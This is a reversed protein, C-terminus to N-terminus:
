RGAGSSAGGGSGSGPASASPLGDDPLLMRKDRISLPAGERVRIIGETIVKQDPELGSLVEAMGDQRTGITVEIRKAVPGEEREAVTWLFTKPGVSAVAEEPVALGRRPNARLTVSMFMGSKLRSEANPLEARVRVARTVPDIANDVSAVTGTFVEGPLDSTVADIELGPTLATLFTSPVSFDLNMVSDDILTAVVDGPRVFSGVSVQRFGLVGDFPAVLVRDRQRSQVARLQASAADFNRNAQDLESQSVAKEGALREVRELQRRAEDVDAEAAEVLAAQERQALSLLTKGANVRQGDDFYIATVRDAANLTLAVRENPELTGLAEIRNSFAVERAPEAFVSAPGRFQAVAPSAAALMVGVSLGAAKLSGIPHFFKAM